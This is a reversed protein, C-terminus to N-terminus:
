VIEYCKITEAFGSIDSSLVPFDGNFALKSTSCQLSDIDTICSKLPSIYFEAHSGCMVVYETQLPDQSMVLDHMHDFSSSFTKPILLCTGTIFDSAMEENSKVGSM